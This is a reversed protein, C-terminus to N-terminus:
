GVIAPDVGRAKMFAVMHFKTQEASYHYDPAVPCALRALCGRERCPKGEPSLLHAACASVDYGASTFANVLCTSLCPKAVCSQCPSAMDGATQFPIEDDFMFAARYGHWLGFRHHINLGLPSPHGAKALRAWTLFPPHPQDFPFVVKAQLSASLHSLVDRTWDDMLDSGPDRESSFREYMEPGANGILVLSQGDFAIDSTRKLWGFVEFGEARIAAEITEARQM